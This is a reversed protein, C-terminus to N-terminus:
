EKAEVEPMYRAELGELHTYDNAMVLRWGNSDQALSTVSTNGFSTQSLDVSPVLAALMSRIATTHSIVAVTLNGSEKEADALIDQLAAMARERVQKISEGGPIVYSDPNKTLEAYEEPYWARVEPLILGQWHGISRERLREDYIPAFGLQQALLEATDVARRNDSSYLKNVGINRIFNALRQVQLRGHENLPAAVWGQWRGTLNWDTEGPRILMLRKLAM